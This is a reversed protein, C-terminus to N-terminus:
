KILDKNETRIKEAKDELDKAEKSLKEHQTKHEQVKATLSEMDESALMDQSSKRAVDMIEARKAFEQSKLSLYEKFKDKIKLKSAEDFKKSAERYKAASKTLLDISEQATAKDSKSDADTALKNGENIATNGEGVLKNAKETEDSFASCALVFTLMLALAVFANRRTQHYMSRRPNWNTKPYYLTALIYCPYGANAM